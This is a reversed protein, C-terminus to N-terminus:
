RAITINTKIIRVDPRSSLNFLFDVTIGQHTESYISFLEPAWSKLSWRKLQSSAARSTCIWTHSDTLRDSGLNFPLSLYLCTSFSLPLFLYTTAPLTLCLYSSAPLTLCLYSSAPLPLCLWASTPLHLFLCASDPLPLFLCAFASLPLYLCTSSPLPLCHCSFCFCFTPLTGDMYMGDM